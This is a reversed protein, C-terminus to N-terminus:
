MIAGFCTKCQGNSLVFIFNMCLCSLDIFYMRHDSNRFMTDVILDILSVLVSLSIYQSNLFFKFADYASQISRNDHIYELKHVM